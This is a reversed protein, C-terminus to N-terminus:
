KENLFILNTSASDPMSSLYLRYLEAAKNQLYEDYLLLNKPISFLWECYLIGDVLMGQEVCRFARHDYASIAWTIRSDTLEPMDDAAMKIYINM